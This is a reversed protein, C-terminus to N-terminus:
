VTCVLKEGVGVYLHLVVSYSYTGRGRYGYMMMCASGSIPSFYMSTGRDKRLMYRTVLM